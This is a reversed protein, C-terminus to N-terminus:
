AMEASNLTSHRISFNIQLISRHFHRGALAVTYAGHGRKRTNKKGRKKNNNKKIIEKRNQKGEKKEERAPCIHPMFRAPRTPQLNIQFLSHAVGTNGRRGWKNNAEGTEWIDIGEQQHPSPPIHHSIHPTM